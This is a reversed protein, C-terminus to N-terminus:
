DIVMNIKLTVGAEDKIRAWQKIQISFTTTGTYYDSSETTYVCVNDQDYMEFHGKVLSSTTNGLQSVINNNKLSVTSSTFSFTLGSTPSPTGNTINVTRDIGIGDDCWSGTENSKLNNANEQSNVISIFDEGGGVKKWGSTDEPFTVSELSSCGVFANSEIDRINKPLAFEKLSTCGDFANSEIGTLISSQDFVVKNLKPCNKFTNQQIISVNFPINVCSLEICDMFAKPAIKTIPAPDVFDVAWMNSNGMNGVSKVETEGVYAPIYMFDKWAMGQPLINVEGTETDINFHEFTAGICHLGLYGWNSSGKTTEKLKSANEKADGLALETSGGITKWGEGNVFEVSDLSECGDFAKPGIVSLSGPMKISTLNTCAAFAYKCIVQLNCSADFTVKKINTKKIFGKDAIGIVELPKDLGLVPLEGLITVEVDGNEALWDGYDSMKVLCTYGDDTKRITNEDYTYCTEDIYQINQLNTYNGPETNNEYSTLYSYSDFTKRIVNTGNKAEYSISDPGISYTIDYDESELNELELAMDHKSKQAFILESYAIYGDKDIFKLQPEQFKTGDITQYSLAIFDQSKIQNGSITSGEAARFGKYVPLTRNNLGECYRGVFEDYQKLFEKKIDNNNRLYRYAVVGGLGLGIIGIPIFIGLLIKKRKSKKPDKIQKQTVKKTNAM